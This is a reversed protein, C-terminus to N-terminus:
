LADKGKRYFFPIILTASFFAALIGAFMSMGLAFMAGSSSFALVAFSALTTLACVLVSQITRNVGDKSGDQAYACAMYIGYDVGIGVVLISATIHMINIPIQLIANVGLLAVLGAVVPIVATLATKINRFAVAILLLIVLVAVFLLMLAKREFALLGEVSDTVVDIPVYNIGAEDLTLAVSKALQRDGIHVVQYYMQEYEVISSDLERGVYEPIDTFEFSGNQFSDILKYFPIFADQTFESGEVALRFSDMDFTDRVISARSEVVSKPPVFLSMSLYPISGDKSLLLSARVSEGIAQEKSNGIFGLFVNNTSEKFEGLIRQGRSDLEKHSIDLSASDTELSTAFSAIFFIMMVVVFVGRAVTNSTYGSFDFCRVKYHYVGPTILRQLIVWNFLFCATLVLVGFLAIDSLSSIRSFFLIVFAVMTTLYGMFLSKGIHSRLQKLTPYFEVMFLYHISYDICIGASTAGFALALAGFTGKLVYILFFTVAIGAVIPMFSFLIVEVNRFFFLFVLVTLLVSLLCIFFVEGKITSASELFYFHAGYLFAEGGGASRAISSIQEDLVELAKTKEVDNPNHGASFVRLFSRGDNSLVGGKYFQLNSQKSFQLKLVQSVQNLPDKFFSEDLADFPMSLLTKYKADLRLSMEKSTFPSGQTEYPYLVLANNSLYDTIEMIDAGTPFVDSLGKNEEILHNVMEITTDLAEKEDCSIYLIVKDSVSSLATLAVSRQLAPDDPLMSQISTDFHILRTSIVILVVALLTVLSVIWLRKNLFHKM